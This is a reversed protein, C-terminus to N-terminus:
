RRPTSGHLALLEASDARCWGTIRFMRGDALKYYTDM